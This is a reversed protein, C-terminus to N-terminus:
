VSIKRKNAKIRRNNAKDLGKLIKKDSNPLNSIHDIRRCPNKVRVCIKGKRITLEAIAHYDLFALAFAKEYREVNVFMYLFYHRISGWEYKISTPKKIAKWVFYALRKFAERKTIVLAEKTNQYIEYEDQVTMKKM